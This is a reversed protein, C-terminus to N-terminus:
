ELLNNNQLITRFREKEQLDENEIEKWDILTDFYDVIDDDLYTCNILKTLFTEFFNIVEKKSKRKM